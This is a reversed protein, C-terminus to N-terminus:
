GGPTQMQSPTPAPANYTVIISKITQNRSIDNVTFKLVNTGSTLTYSINFAGDSGVTVSKNNVMVTANAETQGTISIEATTLVAGDIPATVTLEPPTTDKNVSSNSKKQADSGKDSENSSSGCGITSVM